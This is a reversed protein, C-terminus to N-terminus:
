DRVVVYCYLSSQVMLSQCVQTHDAWYPCSFVTFPSHRPICFRSSQGLYGGSVKQRRKARYWSGCWWGRRTLLSYNSAVAFGHPPSKRPLCSYPPFNLATPKLFFSSDGLFMLLWGSSSSILGYQSFPFFSLLVEIAPRSCVWSM